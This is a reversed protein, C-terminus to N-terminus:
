NSFFIFNNVEQSKKPYGKEDMKLTVSDYVIKGSEHLCYVLIDIESKMEGTVEFEHETEYGQWIFNENFIITSGSKVVIIMDDEIGATTITLTINKDVGM